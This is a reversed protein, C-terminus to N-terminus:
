LVIPPVRRGGGLQGSLQKSEQLLSKAQKIGIHECLENKPQTFLFGSEPLMKAADNTIQGLSVAM